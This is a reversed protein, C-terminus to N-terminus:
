NSSSLRVSAPFILWKFCTASRRMKYQFVERAPGKFLAVIFYAVARLFEHMCLIAFYGAVSFCSHHKKWYQLNARQM